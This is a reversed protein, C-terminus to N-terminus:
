GRAAEASLTSSPRMPKKAVSVSQLYHTVFKYVMCRNVQKPILVQARYNCAVATLIDDVREVSQLQPPFFFISERTKGREPPKRPSESAFREL